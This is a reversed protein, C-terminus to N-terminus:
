RSMAWCFSGPLLCTTQTQRDLVGSVVSDSGLATMVAICQTDARHYQLLMLPMGPAQLRAEPLFAPPWAAPNSPHAARDQAEQQRREQEQAALQRRMQQLHQQRLLLDALGGSYGDQQEGQHEADDYYPHGPRTTTSPTGSQQQLLPFSPQQQALLQDVHQM